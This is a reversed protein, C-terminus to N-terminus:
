DAVQGSTLIDLLWATMRPRRKETHHQYKGPSKIEGM